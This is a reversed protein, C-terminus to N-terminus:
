KLRLETMVIEWYSTVTLVVTLNKRCKFNFDFSRGEIKNNGVIRTFPSQYFYM